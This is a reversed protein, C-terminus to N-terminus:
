FTGITIIKMIIATYSIEDSILLLLFKSKLRSLVWTDWAHPYKRITSKIM